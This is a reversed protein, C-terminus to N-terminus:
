GDDDGGQEPPWSRGTLLQWLDVFEGVTSISAGRLVAQPVWGGGPFDKAFFKVQLAISRRGTARRVRSIVLSWQRLDQLGDDIPIRATGKNEEPLFVAGCPQGRLWDNTLKASRDLTSTRM